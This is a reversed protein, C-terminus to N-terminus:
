RLLPSSLFPPKNSNRSQHVNLSCPANNGSSNGLQVSGSATHFKVDVPQQLSSWPTSFFPPKLDQKNMSLLSDPRLSVLIPMGDEGTFWAEASPPCSDLLTSIYIKWSAKRHGQYLRRSSKAKTPIPSETSAPLKMKTRTWVADPFWVSLATRIPHSVPKNSIM